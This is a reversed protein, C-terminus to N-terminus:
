SRLLDHVAIPKDHFAELAMAIAGAIANWNWEHEEAVATYYSLVRIAKDWPDDWLDMEELIGAFNHLIIEQQENM